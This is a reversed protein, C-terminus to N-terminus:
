IYNSNTEQFSSIRSSSANKHLYRRARLRCIKTLLVCRFKSSTLIYLFFNISHNLQELIQAVQKFVEFGVSNDAFANLKLEYAANHLITIPLVLIIYAIVIGLLMATIKSSESTHKDSEMRNSMQLREKAHRSVKCAILPSLIGLIVMPIISYLCSGARLMGGFLAVEDPNNRDYVDPFCMGNSTIKSAWSWSTTYSLILIYVCVISVVATRKTCILKARLPFWVAVFREFCLLVVFWSATMKSSRRAIYFIKCGIVTLSRLDKGVLRSFFAKQFPQTFLAMSDSVALAILYMRSTNQSYGHSAMVAISLFNGTVGVILVTPLYVYNIYDFVILAQHRPTVTMSMLTTLTENWLTTDDTKNQIVISDLSVNM